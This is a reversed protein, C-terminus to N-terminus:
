LGRVGAILRSSLEVDDAVHDSPRGAQVYGDVLLDAAVVRVVGIPLHLMAALDAVSVPADRCRELIDRREFWQRPGATRGAATATLM